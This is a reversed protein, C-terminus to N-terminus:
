ASWGYDKYLILCIGINQLNYWEQTVNATPIKDQAERPKYVSIWIDKCLTLTIAKFNKNQEIYIDVKDRSIELNITRPSTCKSSYIVAREETFPSNCPHIKILKFNFIKLYRNLFMLDVLNISFVLIGWNNMNLYRCNQSCFLSTFQMKEMWASELASCKKKTQICSFCETGSRKRKTLSCFALWEKSHYTPRGNPGMYQIRGWGTGSIHSFWSMCYTVWNSM